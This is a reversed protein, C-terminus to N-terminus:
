ASSADSAGEARRSRVLIVIGAAGAGGLTALPSWLGGSLAYGIGLTALAGLGLWLGAAILLPRGQAQRLVPATVALAAWVAALLLPGIGVAAAVMAPTAIPDELGAVARTLGAADALPVPAWGVGALGLGVAAALGGMAGLAARVWSRAATGALLPYVAGAFVLALLPALAPLLVRRGDRAMLGVWLLAALAGAPVLGLALNGLLPLSAALVLAGALLPLRLAVVAALLGIAFPWATPYFPLAGLIVATGVATAGSPWYPALRVAVAEIRSEASPAWRDLPREEGSVEESADPVARLWRQRLNVRPEALEVPKRVSPDDDREGRELAIAGRLLADRLQGPMPRRQDDPDLARDIMQTAVRPLDPREDALSLRLTRHKEALEVPSKSRYPNRRTLAEYAVLAAAWIDVASTQLEGRVQEPAMYSLTGLLSEDVTADPSDILAIGFDTLKLIGDERLLINGPKVDRHVVGRAHAHELADCVAAVARLIEPEELRREKLVVSLDNGRVLEFAVFVYHEDEVSGVMRVIAGHDLSGAARMERRARRRLKEEAPIAKLAVRDGTVLDEAEFVTASGGIGITEIIRYREAVVGEPFLPPVGRPSTRLPRVTM